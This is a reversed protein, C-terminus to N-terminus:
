DIVRKVLVEEVSRITCSFPLAPNWTTKTLSRCSVSTTNQDWVAGHVALSLFFHSTLFAIKSLANRTFGGGVRGGRFRGVLGHM